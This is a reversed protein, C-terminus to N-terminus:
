TIIPTAGKSSCIKAAHNVAAQHIKKLSNKNLIGMVLAATFSDGAGITDVVKIKPVSCKSIENNTFLVSGKSGNTLALLKLNFKNLIQKCSKEQDGTLDFMKTLVILEEDNLKLVNSWKLTNEIIEKTYYLARLNVDYVKLATQPVLNIAEQIAKLSTESRQSLTGFCIADAKKLVPISEKKLRIFDWAVNKYIEYTPIGKKLKVSVIGTPYKVTNISYKTSRKKLALIIEKGYDDSGIASILFSNAGFYSTHYVFNAPAGGLEKGNPLIDWLLEGIGVVTFTKNEM